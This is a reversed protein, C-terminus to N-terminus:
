SSQWSLNAPHHLDMYEITKLIREHANMHLSPNSVVLEIYQALTGSWNDRKRREIHSTIKELFQQVTQTESM